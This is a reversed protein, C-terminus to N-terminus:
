TAYDFPFLARNETGQTLVIPRTRSAHLLQSHIWSGTLFLYPSVLHAVTPRDEM